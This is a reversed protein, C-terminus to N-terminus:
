ASIVKEKDTYQKQSLLFAMYASLANEGDTNLKKLTNEFQQIKIDKALSPPSMSIRGLLWDITVNFTDAIKVLMPASPISKAQEWVNITQQSCNLLESFEEQTMKKSTRIFRIKEAFIPNYESKSMTEEGGKM